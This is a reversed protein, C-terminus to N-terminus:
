ATDITKKFYLDNINTPGAYSIITNVCNPNHMFGYLLAIHGGASYGHLHFKDQKIGYKLKNTTLFGVVKDMDTM